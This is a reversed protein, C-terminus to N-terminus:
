TGLTGLPHGAPPLPDAQAPRARDSYGPSARRRPSSHHCSRALPVCPPLRALPCHNPRGAHAAPTESAVLGLPACAIRRLGWHRHRRHDRRGSQTGPTLHGQHRCTQGKPALHALRAVDACAGIASVEDGQGKRDSSPAVEGRVGEGACPPANPAIEDAGSALNTSYQISFYRTALGAAEKVVVRKSPASVFICQSLHIACTNSSTRECTARKWLRVCWSNCTSALLQRSRSYGAPDTSKRCPSVPTPKNIM